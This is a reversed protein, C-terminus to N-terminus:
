KCDISRILARALSHAFPCVSPCVWYLVIQWVDGWVLGKVLQQGGKLDRLGDYKQAIEEEKTKMKKKKGLRQNMYSELFRDRSPDGCRKM